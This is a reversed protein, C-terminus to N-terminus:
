PVDNRALDVATVYRPHEERVLDQERIREEITALRRHDLAAAVSQELSARLADRERGRMNQEYASGQGRTVQWVYLLSVMSVGVMLVPLAIRSQKKQSSYKKHFRM